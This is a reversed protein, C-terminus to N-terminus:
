HFYTPDYTAHPRCNAADVPSPEAAARANISQFNEDYAFEPARDQARRRRMKKERRGRRKGCRRKVAAKKKKRAKQLRGRPSDSDTSTNESRMVRDADLIHGFATFPLRTNIDDSTYDSSSSSSAAPRRSNLLGPDRMTPVAPIRM